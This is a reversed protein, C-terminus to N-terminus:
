LAAWHLVVVAGFLDRNPVTTTHNMAAYRILSTAMTIGASPGDKEVAVLEHIELNKRIKPIISQMM